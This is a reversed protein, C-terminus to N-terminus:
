FLNRLKIKDADQIHLIRQRIKSLELLTNPKDREMISKKIYALSQEVEETEAHRMVVEFIRTASEWEEEATKLLGDSEEWREVSVAKDLLSLIETLQETKSSIYLSNAVILTLILIFSAIVIIATKM